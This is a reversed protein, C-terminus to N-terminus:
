ADVAEAQSEDLEFEAASPAPAHPYTNGYERVRPSAHSFFGGQAFLGGANEPTRLRLGNYVTTKAHGKTARTYKAGLAQGFAKKTMPRENSRECWAKYCAFAGAAPVDFGDGIECNEAIFETLQDMEERYERTAEAVASPLGLGDRQWLRCGEIAWALIGPLEDSFLAMLVEKPQREGEPIQVTFPVLRVRRWIAEDVGRISPKHNAALWLKFQPLFEFSNQHLFRATIVDQGTLTKIMGEDLRAGDAAEISAVMRAGRLRAIDERAADGSRKQQLFTRFAAQTAYDGLLMRLVELFTSKGNAGIGYLFFFVQERTDGTLTYGVARQLFEILRQDGATVRALFRMWEPCAAGPRYDVDALKTLMLSPQHEVLQGTRLDLVGNAVNLLWPDADFEDARAALEDETSACALMAELRAQKESSLAHRSLAERRKSDIAPDAAERHLSLVTEKALQLVQRTEDDSWRQGDWWRWSKWRHVYRVQERWQLAFREGNGVDTLRYGRELEPRLPLIAATDEDSAPKPAPGREILRAGPKLTALAREAVALRGSNM